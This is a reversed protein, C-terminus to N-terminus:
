KDLGVNWCMRPSQLTRPKWHTLILYDLDVHEGNLNYIYLSDKNHNEVCVEHSNVHLIIRECGDSRIAVRGVDEPTIPNDANIKQM